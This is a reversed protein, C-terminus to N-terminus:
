NQCASISRTVQSDTQTFPINVAFRFEVRVDLFVYDGDNNMRFVIWAVKVIINGDDLEFSGNVKSVLVHMIVHYNKLTTM